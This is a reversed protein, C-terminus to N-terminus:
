QECSSDLGEVKAEAGRGRTPHSLFYLSRACFLVSASAKSTKRQSLRTPLQPKLTNSGNRHNTEVKKEMIGFFYLGLILGIYGCYLGLMVRVYGWYLELMVRTYGWYLRLMVRM